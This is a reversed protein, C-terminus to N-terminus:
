SKKRKAVKADQKEKRDLLKNLKIQAKRMDIVHRDASERMRREVWAHFHITGRASDIQEDLKTPYQSKRASKVVKKVATKGSRKPAKMEDAMFM